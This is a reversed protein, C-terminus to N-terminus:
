GKKRKFQKQSAERTLYRIIEERAIIKLPTRRISGRAIERRLTTGNIGILRAAIETPYALMDRVPIGRYFLVSNDVRLAIEKTLGHKSLENANTQAADIPTATM